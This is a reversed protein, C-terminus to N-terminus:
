SPVKITLSKAKPIVTQCAKVKKGNVMVECTGCDGKECNYSIKVKADRAVNKLSQNPFANISKKSPEFTVKVPDPVKSLGANQQPSLTSDNEFGKKIADFLGMRLATPTRDVKLTPPTLLFGNIAEFFLFLLVTSTFINM